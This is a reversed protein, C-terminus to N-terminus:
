PRGDNVEVSEVGVTRRLRQRARVLRTRVVDYSVGLMEMLEEYTTEELYYLALIERDEVSLQLMGDRVREMLPHERDIPLPFAVGKAAEGRIRDKALNLAIRTLFAKLSCEGRYRGAARWFRLFTAVAVEEADQENGLMRRALTRLRTEHTEFVARMAREDGRACRRALDRDADRAATEDATM